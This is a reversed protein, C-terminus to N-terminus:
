QVKSKKLDILHGGCTARIKKMTKGEDKLAIIVRCNEASITVFNEEKTGRVNDRIRNAWTRAENASEALLVEKDERIFDILSNIM